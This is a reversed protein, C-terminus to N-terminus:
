FARGDAGSDSARGSGAGDHCGAALGGLQGTFRLDTEPQIIRNGNGLAPTLRWYGTVIPRRSVSPPAYGTKPIPHCAFGGAGGVEGVISGALHPLRSRRGNWHGGDVTPM